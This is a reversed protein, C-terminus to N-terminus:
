LNCAFTGCSIMLSNKSHCVFFVTKRLAICLCAHIHSGTVLSDLQHLLMDGSGSYGTRNVADASEATQEQGIQLAHFLRHQNGARVADTGFELNCHQHILVIGDTNVAHCHADIIDNAATCLRQEEEIVDGAALVERFFDCRDNLANCLAAHLCATRQDAALSGLMGAHHGIIVIIKGAERDTDNVALLEELGIRLFGAIDENCDCRAAHMGVTKGEHALHERDTLLIKRAVICIEARREAFTQQRRGSDIDLRHKRQQLLHIDLCDGM